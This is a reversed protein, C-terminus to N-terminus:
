FAASFKVSLSLLFKRIHSVKLQIFWRLSREFGYYLSGLCHAHTPMYKNLKTNLYPVLQVTTFSSLLIETYIFRKTKVLIIISEGVPRTKFVSHVYMYLGIESRTCAHKRLMTYVSHVHVITCTCTILSDTVIVSPLQVIVDRRM